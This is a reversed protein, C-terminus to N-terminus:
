ESAPTPALPFLLLTERQGNAGELVLADERVAALVRGDALAEGAVRRVVEGDALTLLVAREATNVAVGVFGIAQLPTLEPPEAEQAAREAAEREERKRREELLSFGWRRNTLFPTLAPQPPLTAGVPLGEAGDAATEANEASDGVPALAGALAGVLAALLVVALPRRRRLAPPLAHFVRRTTALLRAPAAATEVGAVAGGPARQPESAASM